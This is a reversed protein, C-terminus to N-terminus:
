KKVREIWTIEEKGEIARYCFVVRDGPMIGIDAFSKGLKPSLSYVKEEQSHIIKVSDRDVQGALVGEAKRSLSSDVKIDKIVLQGKDNRYYTFTVRDGEQLDTKASSEPYWFAWAKGNVIIEIVNGDARGTYTGTEEKIEAANEDAPLVPLAMGSAPRESDPTKNGTIGGGTFVWAIIGIALLLSILLISYKRIHSVGKPFPLLGTKRINIVRQRGHYVGAEM